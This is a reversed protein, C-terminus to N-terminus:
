PKGEERLLALVDVMAGPKVLDPTLYRATSQLCHHGLLKQLSVIDMDGRLCTIAFTHRLRHSSFQGELGSREWARRLAASLTAALMPEDPGGLQRQFVFGRPRFIQWYRTLHERLTPELRVFRGHGGKGCRVRILPRGKEFDERRLALVESIRLGTALMTLAATKFHLQEIHKFLRWVERVTLWRPPQEPVRMPRLGRLGTPLERMVLWLRLAHFNVNYWQPSIKPRNGLEILFDYVLGADSEAQGKAAAWGLFRELVGCYSTVTGPRRGMAHLHRQFFLIRCESM